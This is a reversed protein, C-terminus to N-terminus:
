FGKLSRVYHTGSIVSELWKPGYVKTYKLIDDLGSGQVHKGTAYLVTIAKHFGELMPLLDKFEDLDNLSIDLVIRFVGEDCFVPIKKQKM